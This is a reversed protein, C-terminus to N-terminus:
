KTVSLKNTFGAVCQTVLYSLILLSLQGCLYYYYFLIYDEKCPLPQQSLNTILASVFCLQTPSCRFVLVQNVHANVSNLLFTM